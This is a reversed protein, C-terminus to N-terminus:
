RAFTLQSKPVLWTVVHPELRGARVAPDTAALALTEDPGTRYLCLGRWTPDPQDSFPGPAAMVGRERMAANFAVHREQILDLEHEPLDPATDPRILVVLTYSEFEM